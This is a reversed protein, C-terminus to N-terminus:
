RDAAPAQQGHLWAVHLLMGSRWDGRRWAACLADRDILEPDIGGGDWEEIFRQTEADQWITRYPSAVPAGARPPLAPAIRRRFGDTDLPPRVGVDRAVAAGVEPSNYAPLYAAGHEAALREYVMIATMGCTRTIMRRGAEGGSLPSTVYDDVGMRMAERRAEGRLYPIDLATAFRRALRRRVPLPALAGLALIDQRRLRRRHVARYLPLGRWLVFAEHLGHGVVLTGGEACRMMPVFLYAVAPFMPGHRVLCDRAVPGLLGRQDTVDPRLWDSFGLTRVVVEAYPDDEADRMRPTVAVPAPAGARRAAEVAAAAVVASGDDGSVWVIMPGREAHPVLRRVVAEYIGPGEGRPWAPVPGGYPGGCAMEIATLGPPTLM